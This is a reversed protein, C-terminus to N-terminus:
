GSCLRSPLHRGVDGDRLEDADTGLVKNSGAYREFSQPGKRCDLTRKSALGGADAAKRMNFTGQHVRCAPKRGAGCLTNSMRYVPVVTHKPNRAAAPPQREAVLCRPIQDHLFPGGIRAVERLAASSGIRVERCRLAGGVAPYFNVFLFPTRDCHLAQVLHATLTAACPELQFERLEDPARGAM